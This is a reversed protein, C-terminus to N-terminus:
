FGSFSQKSKKLKCQKAKLTNRHHRISCVYEGYPNCQIAMAKVLYQLSIAQESTSCLKKAVGRWVIKHNAIRTASQKINIADSANSGEKLECVFMSVSATDRIEKHVQKTNDYESPQASNIIFPLMYM